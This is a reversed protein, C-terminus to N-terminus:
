YCANRKFLCKELKIREVEKNKWWICYTFFLSLLFIRGFVVLWWSSMRGGFVFLVFCSAFFVGIVLSGGGGVFLFFQSLYSFFLFRLLALRAEGFRGSRAVRASTRRDLGEGGSGGLAGGHRPPPQISPSHLAKPTKSDTKTPLLSPFMSIPKPLFCM